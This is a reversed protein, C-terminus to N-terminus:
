GGPAGLAQQTAGGTTNGGGGGGTQLGTRVRLVRVRERLVRLTSAAVLTKEREARPENM